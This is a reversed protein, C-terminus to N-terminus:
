TRVVLYSRRASYQTALYAGLFMSLTSCVIATLVVTGISATQSSQFPNGNFLLTNPGVQRKNEFWGVAKLWWLPYFLKKMAIDPKSTDAIMGDHYHTVLYPFFSQWGELTDHGVKNTVKTLIDVVKTMRKAASDSAVKNYVVAQNSTGVTSTSTSTETEEVEMFTELIDLCAQEALRTDNLASELLRKQLKQIEPLTYKYFRSAYNGVVAFNWFPTDWDFSFLSGRTYPKPLTETAIYIPTFASHVPAYTTFWVRAGIINPLRPRAQAVISYGTRFMSIAREFAGATADSATMNGTATPDWRNPDGFPGAALGKTLDYPTGEFHDRQINMMDEPTLIRESKVSFPLNSGYGDPSEPDLNLSPAAWSLVRWRRRNVYTPHARTPAYTKLFDLPGDEKRWFGNREAVEWLNDSYMFNYSTPDVERIIFQNSVAAVHDDPVRQAVWVASTGTDDGLIHFVWAERPDVVTLAEGGEGLSGDGGGWDAAYFGYEVALSGMLQIAERASRTRELALQSLERVELMAKGGASTPAAWFKAACTSEGIAVQHENMIGYGAEVLAFTHEVQPLHGTMISSEGWAQLQEKTGQLNSPQWTEGRDKNITQPYNGKYQYTPRMINPIWNKAPVKNIRFDCDLCDATHTAMSGESGARPGVAITTCRDHEKFWDSHDLTVASALKAYIFIVSLFTFRYDFMIM